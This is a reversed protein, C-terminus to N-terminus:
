KTKENMFHVLDLLQSKSFTVTYVSQFDKWHEGSIGNEQLVRITEFDSGQYISVSLTEGINDYSVYDYSLFNEDYSAISFGMFSDEQYFGDIGLQMNEIKM